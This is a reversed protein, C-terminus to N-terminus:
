TIYYSFYGVVWVSMEIFCMWGECSKNEVNREKCNCRGWLTMMEKEAAVVTCQDKRASKCPASAWCQTSALIIGVMKPLKFLSASIGFFKSNLNM